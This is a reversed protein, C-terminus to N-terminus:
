GVVVPLFMTFSLALISVLWAKVVAHGHHTTQEMVVTSRRAQSERDIHRM